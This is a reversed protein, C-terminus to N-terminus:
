KKADPLLYKNTEQIINSCDVPGPHPREEDHSPKSQEILDFYVYNEWKRLWEMSYVFWEEKDSVAKPISQMMNRIAFGDELRNRDIKPYKSMIADLTNVEGENDSPRTSNSIQSDTELVQELQAVKKQIDPKKLHDFSNAKRAFELALDIEKLNEHMM